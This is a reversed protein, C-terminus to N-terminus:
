DVAVSLPAKTTAPPTPIALFKFTPPSATIVPLKVTLPDVVITLEESKDVVSRLMVNATPAVFLAVASPAPIVTAPDPASTLYSPPLSEQFKFLVTLAGVIM